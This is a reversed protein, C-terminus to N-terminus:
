ILMTDNPTMEGYGSITLTGNNDIEWKISNGEGSYSAAKTTEKFFPIFGSLISLTFVFSIVFSLIKMNSKVLSKKM